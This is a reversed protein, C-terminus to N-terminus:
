ADIAEYIKQVCSKAIDPLPTEPAFFSEFFDGQRGKKKLANAAKIDAIHMSPIDECGADADNDELWAAKAPCRSAVRMAVFSNAFHLRSRACGVSSNSDPGQHARLWFDCSRM